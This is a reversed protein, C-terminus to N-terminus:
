QYRYKESCHFCATIEHSPVLLVRSQLYVNTTKISSVIGIKFPKVIIFIIINGANNPLKEEHFLNFITIFFHRTYQCMACGGVPVFM